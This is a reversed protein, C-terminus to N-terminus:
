SVYFADALTKRDAGRYKIVELCKEFFPRLVASEHKRIISQWEPAARFKTSKSDPFEHLTMDILLGLSMPWSFIRPESLTPYLPTLQTPRIGMTTMRPIIGGCYQLHCHPHPQRREGGCPTVDFHFKRLVALSRARCVALCYSVNKYAGGQREIRAGIVLRINPRAKYSRKKDTHLVDLWSFFEFGAPTGKNRAFYIAADQAFQPHMDKIYPQDRLYNLLGVEYGVLEDPAPYFEGLEM